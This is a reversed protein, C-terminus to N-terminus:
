MIAPGVWRLINGPILYIAWDWNNGNAGRSVMQSYRNGNGSDTHYMWLELTLSTLTGINNITVTDNVGDFDLSYPM